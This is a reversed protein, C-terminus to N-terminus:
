KLTTSSIDDPHQFVASCQYKLVLFGAINEQFNVTVHFDKLTIHNINYLAIIM